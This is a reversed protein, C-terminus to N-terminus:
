GAQFLTKFGQSVQGVAAIVINMKGMWMQSNIGWKTLAHNYESSVLLTEETANTSKEIQKALNNSDNGSVEPYSRMEGQESALHKEALYESFKPMTSLQSMMGHYSTDMEGMKQLMVRKFDFSETTVPEQIQLIPTDMASPSISDSGGRNLINELRMVDQMPPAPLQQAGGAQMVPNVLTSADLM